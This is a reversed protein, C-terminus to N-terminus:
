KIEEDTESELWKVIDLGIGECSCGDCEYLDTGKYQPDSHHCGYNICDYCAVNHAENEDVCSKLFEAMEEVNMAKIKEYNTVREM